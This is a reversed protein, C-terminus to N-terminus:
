LQLSNYVDKTAEEIRHNSMNFQSRALYVYKLTSNNCHNKDNTNHLVNILQQFIDQIEQASEETNIVPTIIDMDQPLLNLKDQVIDYLLSNPHIMFLGNVFTYSCKNARLWLTLSYRMSDNAIHRIHDM